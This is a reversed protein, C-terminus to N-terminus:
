PQNVLNIIQLKYIHQQKKGQKPDVPQAPGVKM